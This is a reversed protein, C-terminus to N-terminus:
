ISKWTRRNVIGYVVGDSVNYRRGLETQSIDGFIYRDLIDKVQPIKLTPSQHESDYVKITKLIHAAHHMNEKQTCWELNDIHNNKSNGDKHNIYPKSEQNPIFMIAVLRHVLFNKRVGKNKLTVAKYGTGRKLLWEKMIRERIPRFSKSGYQNGSNSIKALGKIRGFNSVEYLGEYGVVDKWIEEM